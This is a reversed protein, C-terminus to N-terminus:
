DDFLLKRIDKQKNDSKDANASESSHKSYINQKDINLDFVNLLIQILDNDLEKVNDDIHLSTNLPGALIKTANMLAMLLQEPEIDNEKSYDILLNTIKYTLNDISLKVKDFGHKEFMKGFSSSSNTVMSTLLAIYASYIFPEADEIFHASDDTSQRDKKVFSVFARVLAFTTFQLSDRDSYHFHSQVLADFKEKEDDTLTNSSAKECLDRFEKLSISHTSLVGESIADRLMKRFNELGIRDIMDKPTMNSGNEDKILGIVKVNGDDQALKILADVVANQEELTLKIFQEKEMFHMLQKLDNGNDVDFNLM